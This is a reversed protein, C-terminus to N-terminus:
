QCKSNIHTRSIVFIVREATEGCPNGDIARLFIKNPKEIDVFFVRAYEGKAWSQGEQKSSDLLKLEEPKFKLDKFSVKDFVIFSVKANSDQRELADMIRTRVYKAQTTSKAEVLVQYSITGGSGDPKYTVADVSQKPAPRSLQLANLADYVELPLETDFPFAFQSFFEGKLPIKDVLALESYHTESPTLLESVFRAVLNELTCGRLTGANCASYFSACVLAEHYGFPPGIDNISSPLKANNPFVMQLLKAMSIRVLSEEKTKVYLGPQERTGALMLYLLFDEKPDPFFTTCSFTIRKGVSLWYLDDRDGSIAEDRWLYLSIPETARISLRMSRDDGETNSNHELRARKASEKKMELVDRDDVLYAWNKTSFNGFLRMQDVDGSILAGGALLMAIVYGFCGDHDSAGKKTRFVEALGDRLDEVFEIFDQSSEDPFGDLYKEIKDAVAKAFLPRSQVCLNLVTKVATDTCRDIKMRLSSPPVYKPLRSCLNVWPGDTERSVDTAAATNLMNLAGSDTSAVVVCAGIEMMRRRLFALKEQNLHSNVTFEDIFFVLEKGTLKMWKEAQSRVDDETTSSIEYEEFGPKAKNLIKLRCLDVPLELDPNNILLKILAKLFGYIRFEAASKGDYDEVLWEIFEVMYGKFAEYVPQRKSESRTAVTMNLYVCACQEEPLAFALQTKGTGSPVCLANFVKSMRGQKFKEWLSDIFATAEPDERIRDASQSYLYAASEEGSLLSSREALYLYYENEALLSPVAVIIPSEEYMGLNGILSGPSRPERQENEDIMEFISENDYIKLDTKELHKLRNPHEAYIANRVEVILAGTHILVADVDTGEVAAGTTANVLKYFVFRNELTSQTPREEPPMQVLAGYFSFM